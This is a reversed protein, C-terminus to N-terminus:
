FQGYDVLNRTLMAERELSRSRALLLPDQDQEKGIEAPAPGQDAESVTAGAKAGPEGEQFAYLTLGSVTATTTNIEQSAEHTHLALRFILPGYGDTKLKLEDTPLLPLSGTAINMHEYLGRDELGIGFKTYGGAGLAGQQSMTWAIEELHQKTLDGYPEEIWFRWTAEKLFYDHHCEKLVAQGAALDVGTLRQTDCDGVNIQDGNVLFVWTGFDGPIRVEGQTLGTLPEYFTIFPQFSDTVGQWTEVLETAEEPPYAEPLGSPALAVADIGMTSSNTEAAVSKNLVAVGLYLSGGDPLARLCLRDGNLPLAGTENTMGADRFGAFCDSHGGEGLDEQAPNCGWDLGELPIREQDQAFNELWVRVAGSGHYGTYDEYRHHCEYVQLQGDLIEIRSDCPAVNMQYGAFVYRWTGLDGAITGSSGRFVLGESPSWREELIPLGDVVRVALADEEDGLQGRYVFHFTSNLDASSGVLADIPVATSWAGPALPGVGATIITLTGDAENLRGVTLSGAEMTESSDNRVEVGYTGGGLIVPRVSLKGRFFYDVLSASYAAARPLLRPAYEEVCAETVDFVSKALVPNALIEEPAFSEAPLTYQALQFIHEGATTDNQLYPRNLIDLYLDNQLASALPYKYSNVTDWSFFNVNSYEALGLLSGAPLTEGDYRNIDWLASVPSAAEGHPIWAVFIESPKPFETFLANALNVKNKAWLELRNGNGYAHIDDRTHDPVAMDQVDHMLQGVGRFLEALNTERDSEQEATFAQYYYGRVDPWSYDGGPDPPWPDGRSQDLRQAWLLNSRGLLSDKLGAYEWPHVTPDHFHNFARVIYQDEQEAGHRIWDIVKKLGDGPHTVTAKVGKSMELQTKLFGDLETKSEVAYRSIEPHTFEHHWAQVQSCTALTALLFFLFSIACKM